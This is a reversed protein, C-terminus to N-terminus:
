RGKAGLVAAAKDPKDHAFRAIGSFFTLLQESGQQAMKPASDGLMKTVLAAAKSDTHLFVEVQQKIVSDGVSRPRDAHNLVAVATVPVTPMLPAPRVRGEAYWVRGTPGKAVTQWVLESGNDDKWFFRGDKLRKIEIAGVGLKRWASGTRDPNDLCWQYTDPHAVFEDPDSVATITPDKMVKSLAERTVAPMADLAVPLTLSATRAGYVSGASKPEASAPSVAALLLAACLSGTP